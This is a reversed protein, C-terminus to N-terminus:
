VRMGFGVCPLLLVALNKPVIVGKTKKLYQRESEYLKSVLLQQFATWMKCSM